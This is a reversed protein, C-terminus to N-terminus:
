YNFNFCEDKTLCFIEKGEFGKTNFRPICIRFFRTTIFSVGELMREDVTTFTCSQTESPSHFFIFLSKNGEKEQEEATLNGAAVKNMDISAISAEVSDTEDLEVNHIGNSRPSM